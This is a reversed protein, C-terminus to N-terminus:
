DVAKIREVLSLKQSWRTAGASFAGQVLLLAAGFLLMELAPFHYTIKGFTGLQDFVKCVIVSCVTGLTLAALLAVGAYFLCELSLMRSLQRSSMGVSQFIGLEQQRALLNTILTNALNILSFVFIFVLIGYFMTLEGRLSAEMDSVIDGLSVVNIRTDTVADYVARRLKDGDEKAHVNLYATFDGIEPYLEHLEEEPLVFFQASGVRAEEVIGMITYTKHQGNYGQLTVTDGVKFEAGYVTKLTSGCPSVLIGDQEVLQRYEATGDLVARGEYMGSMQEETLGLIDFPEDEMIQPIEMSTSSYATIYDVGPLAALREQLDKGLPNEEQTEVFATGFANEHQMLLYNSGDGFSALAIEKADVSNAYAAVCILLIGTLSLSLATVIAKKRSRAFNMWALRPITLRRHSRRSVGRGRQESYATARIAQIASVNGVLKLPTRTAIRVVLDTVLSIVVAYLISDGWSWYGPLVAWTIAAAAILGLPIAVATLIRRERKVVRKLQKPTAGLVKLRGYERMKGMVSIYFINYIVIACILAILLALAYIEVGSGLTLEAADFYNSSYFTQEDPVGMERFFAAIDLKLRAPEARQSGAFRFRLEYPAPNGSSLAEGESIWLTFLQSASDSVSELIGTITYAHEGQGLDLTITQGLQDPLKYYELFSREVCLEYAGQPYAGTVRGYGMLDIMGPDVFSVSLNSYEYRVSAFGATYGWKEFRGAAVLHEIEEYSLRECGAQYQGQIHEMTQMQKASYVFCLTGMLCVALAITVLVFVSRRRDARMSRNALKKIVASTDNEFPWTM